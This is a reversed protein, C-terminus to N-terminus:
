FKTCITPRWFGSHSVESNSQAVQLVKVGVPPVATIELLMVTVTVLGVPPSDVDGPINAPLRKGVWYLMGTFLVTSRLSKAPSNVKQKLTGTSFGTIAMALWSSSIAVAM